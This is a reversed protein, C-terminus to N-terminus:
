RILKQYLKMLESVCESESMNRWNFGYAEMVAKDNEQHAKRLELPMTLENYLDAYSWDSYIERAKLIMEATSKLREKQKEDLEPWPFNNYVISASYRYRMELRGAVARVWAMHVNSSMISFNQKSAKPIILVADSAITKADVYGIPIYKRNESSVRPVLLYDENPQRIEGFAYSYNALDQTSKRKSALRNERVSEIRRKIPPIRIADKVEDPKIWLCYREIKNIFEKAGLFEHIFVDAQPYSKLLDDKEEKSLILNGGDNPMSGFIMKPADCLAESRTSIFINPGEILYPNINDVKKVMNGTSYIYKEEREVQSFGIIVCHVHAKIAAENDWIFTQYAFNINIKNEDFLPEWLIAVQEGQSISNTSVFACEIETNTFYDCAKKYWASVYDLNGLGKLKGFVVKMDDKQKNNMMRAGLFPPNGMIYNLDNKPVVEEWNMTLANGEVINPYSKLPLFSLNMNVIDETEKMM